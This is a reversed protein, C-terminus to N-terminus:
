GDRRGASGYLAAAVPPVLWALIEGRLRRPFEDQARLLATVAPYPVQDRNLLYVVRDGIQVTTLLGQV